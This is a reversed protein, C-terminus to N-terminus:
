TKAFAYIRALQNSTPLMDDLKGFEKFNQKLFQKFNLNFLDFQYVTVSKLKLADTEAIQLLLLECM